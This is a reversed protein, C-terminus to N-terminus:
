SRFRRELEQLKALFSRETRESEELAEELERVRARLLANDRELDAVAATPDLTSPPLLRPNPDGTDVFRDMAARSREDVAVFAVELRRPDDHHTRLVVAPLDLEAGTVPHILVVAVRTGPPRLEPSFLTTTGSDVDRNLFRRLRERSRPRVAFRADPAEGDAGTAPLPGLWGEEDDWAEALFLSPAHAPVSAGPGAPLFRVGAGDKGHRRVVEAARRPGEMDDVMRVVSLRRGVELGEPGTVLLGTASIDRVRGASQVDGDVLVACLTSLERPSRALQTM